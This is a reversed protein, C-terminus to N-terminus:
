RLASVLDKLFTQLPIAALIVPLAPIVISIALGTLAEKDVPIPYMNEVNSYASNYDCLTSIEPAAIIEDRHEEGHHVWKDHFASSQMHGIVSYQLIGKRRLPLLKPVFFILPLIAVFFIIVAFAIAPGQFDPLHKGGNLIDNRFSAGVLISAAFSLPVFAQTSISLFGLGGNEDPHSPILQLNLKSLRFAFVTWLLWKWLVVLALFQFFPVSVLMMYWGAPTLHIGTATQYGFTGITQYGLFKHATFVRSFILLLFALEPLISDRYRRLEALIEHMKALDPGVLLRSERIHDLLLRFRSEMIPEALFLVPGAILLRSYIRYDTILEMLRAPDGLLRFLILPLWTICVAFLIRRGINWKRSEVLKFKVQARYFPGGRVLSMDAPTAAEPTDRKTQAGTEM